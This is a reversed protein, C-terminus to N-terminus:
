LNSVHQPFVCREYSILISCHHFSVSLSFLSTTSLHTNCHWKTWWLYLLSQSPVSDPGVLNTASPSGAPDNCIYLLGQVSRFFVPPQPEWIELCNDCSHPLITLGVCRDGKGRASIEKVPQTSGLAM